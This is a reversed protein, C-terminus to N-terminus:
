IRALHSLLYHQQNTNLLHETQIEASAGVIMVLIADQPLGGSCGKM